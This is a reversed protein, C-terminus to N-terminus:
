RRRLNRLRFGLYAAILAFLGSPAWGAVMPDLGKGYGLSTSVGTALIFTIAAVVSVIGTLAAGPFPPGGVAFFLALTPLVLCGIPAAWKVYYDVKFHTADMGEAEVEEIEQRIEAVSMHRTDVRAELGEGLKAVLARVGSLTSLDSPLASCSGQTSLELAVAECGDAKRSSVYVRAGAEVLGRAIMLGIGRSGGTVLAVKGEVSFLQELM